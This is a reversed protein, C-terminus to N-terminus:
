KLLKLPWPLKNFKVNYYDVAIPDFQSNFFAIGKKDSGEFRFIRESNSYDKIAADTLLYFAGTEKGTTNTGGMLSYIFKDDKLILYSAIINGTSTKALYTAANGTNLAIVTASLLKKYDEESIKKHLLGYHKKYFNIVEEPDCNRIVEIKNENAKKLMRQALRKYEKNIEEYKKNLSLFFNRRKMLSLHSATITHPNISNEKLDIDWYKFHKPIASFFANIIEHTVNNGYIATHRIFSPQYLYSFGYKKGRCLPMIAEYDNLVMGDWNTSMTDLYFSQAYITGNTSRKICDDWKEKNIQHSPIINIQHSHM